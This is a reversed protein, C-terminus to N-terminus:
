EEICYVDLKTGHVLIELNSGDTRRVGYLSGDKAKNRFPQESKGLFGDVVDKIADASGRVHVDISDYHDGTTALGALEVEVNHESIFGVVEQVYPKDEQRLTDYLGM